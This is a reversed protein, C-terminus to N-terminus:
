NTKEPTRDLRIIINVTDPRTDTLARHRVAYYDNSEVLLPESENSSTALVM